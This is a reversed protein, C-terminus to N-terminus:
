YFLKITSTKNKNCLGCKDIKELCNSCCIHGCSTIVCINETGYCINCRISQNVVKEVYLECLKTLEHLRRNYNLKIVDSFREIFKTKLEVNNMNEIIDCLIDSNCQKNIKKLNANFIFRELHLMNRFKKIFEIHNDYNIIKAFSNPYKNILKNLKYNKIKQLIDFNKHNSLLAHWINKEMIFNYLNKIKFNTMDINKLAIILQNQTLEIFDKNEIKLKIINIDSSNEFM